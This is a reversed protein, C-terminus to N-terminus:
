CFSGFELGKFGTRLLELAFKRRKRYYRSVHADLFPLCGDGLNVCFFVVTFCLCSVIAFLYGFM